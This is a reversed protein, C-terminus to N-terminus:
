EARLSLATPVSDPYAVDFARDAPAGLLCHEHAGHMPIAAQNALSIRSNFRSNFTRRSGTTGGATVGRM